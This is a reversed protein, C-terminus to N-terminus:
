ADTLDGRLWNLFSQDLLKVDPAQPAPEPEVQGPLPTTQAAGTASLPVPGHSLWSALSVDLLMVDEAAGESALTDPWTPLLPQATAENGGLLEPLTAADSVPADVDGQLPLLPMETEGMSPPLPDVNFGLAVQLSHSWTTTAPQGEQSLLFRVPATAATMGPWAGWAPSSLPPLMRRATAPGREQVPMWVWGGSEETGHARTWWGVLSEALFARGEACLAGQGPFAALLAPSVREMARLGDSELPLPRSAELLTCLAHPNSGPTGLTRLLVRLLRAGRGGRASSAEQPLVEGEGSVSCAGFIAMLQPLHVHMLREKAARRIWFTRSGPQPSGVPRRPLLRPGEATLVGTSSAGPTVARLRLTNTASSTLGLAATSGGVNTNEEEASEEDKAEQAKAPSGSRLMHDAAFFTARAPLDADFGPEHSVDTAPEGINAPVGEVEFTGPIVSRLRPQRTLPWLRATLEALSRPEGRVTGQLPSGFLGCVSEQLASRATRVLLHVGCNKVGSLRRSAAHVAQYAQTLASQVVAPAGSPLGTPHLARPLLLVRPLLFRHTRLAGAARMERLLELGRMLGGRETPEAEALRARAAATPDKERLAVSFRLALKTAGSCAHEELLEARTLGLLAAAAEMRWPHLVPEELPMTQLRRRRSLAARLLVPTGCGNDPLAREAPATGAVVLSACVEHARQMGTLRGCACSWQLPAEREDRYTAATRSVQAASPPAKTAFAASRTGEDAGCPLLPPLVDAAELVEVLHPWFPPLGGGWARAVRGVAVAGVPDAASWWTWDMTSLAPAMPSAPIGAGDRARFRLQLDPGRVMPMSCVLLHHRETLEVPGALEEGTRRDRWPTRGLAGSALLPDEILLDVTSGDAAFPADEEPFEGELPVARGDALIVHGRLVEPEEPAVVLSVKWGLCIGQRDREERESVEVVIGALGPPVTWRQRALTGPARRRIAARAKAAELALAQGGAARMEKGSPSPHFLDALLNWMPSGKPKREAPATRAGWLAAPAELWVQGPRVRMGEACLVRYQLQRDKHSSDPIRAQLIRREPSQSALTVGRRVQARLREGPTRLVRLGSPLVQAGVAVAAAGELRGAPLSAFAALESAVWWSLPGGGSAGTRPNVSWLPRSEVGLRLTGAERVIPVALEGGPTLRAAAVPLWTGPRLDASTDPCAWAPAHEAGNGLDRLM